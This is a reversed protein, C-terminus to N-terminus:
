KCFSIQPLIAISRFDPFAVYPIQKEMLSDVLVGDSGYCDTDPWRAHERKIIVNMSDVHCSRPPDTYFRGGLRNIPFLGWEPRGASELANAVDELVHEDAIYNDDDVAWQYTGVSKDWALGRCTNGGNRHAVPCQYVFRYPQDIKAFLEKDITECDIQIIHEFRGFYTQSDISECTRLLSERQLTPTVISFFPNM